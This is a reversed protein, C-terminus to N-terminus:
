MMEELADELAEMELPSPQPITSETTIADPPLERIYQPARIGRAKESERRKREEEAEKEKRAKEAEQQAEAREYLIKYLEHLERFPRDM